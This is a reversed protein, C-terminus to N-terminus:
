RRRVTRSVRQGPAVPKRIRCRLGMKRVDGGRFSLAISRILRVPSGPDSALPIEEDPLFAAGPEGPQWEGADGSMGVITEDSFGDLHVEGGAPDVLWTRRRDIRGSPVSCAGQLRLASFAAGAPDPPRTM